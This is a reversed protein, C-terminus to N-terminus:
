LPKRAKFATARSGYTVSGDGAAPLAARLNDRLRDPDHDSLAAVSRAVPHQFTSTQSMWYDEFDRFTQSAEVTIIEIDAYGEATLTARLGDPM